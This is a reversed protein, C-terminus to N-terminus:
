IVRSNKLNLICFKWLITKIHHRGDTKRYVISVGTNQVYDDFHINYISTIIGHFITPFNNLDKGIRYAMRNETSVSGYEPRLWIDLTSSKTFILFQKFNNVIKEILEMNSTQRPELYAESTHKKRTIKKVFYILSTLQLM